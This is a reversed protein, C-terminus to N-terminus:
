PLKNVKGKNDNTLAGVHHKIKLLYNM